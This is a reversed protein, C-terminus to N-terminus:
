ARPPRKPTDSTVPDLWPVPSHAPSVAAFPVAPADEDSLVVQGCHHCHGHVCVDQPAPERDSGNGDHEGDVAASAAAEAFGFEPECAAADLTGGLLLALLFLLAALPRFRVLPLRVLM